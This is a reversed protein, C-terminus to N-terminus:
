GGFSTGWSLGVTYVPDSVDSDHYRVDISLSDGISKSVGLTWSTRGGNNRGKVDGSVAFDSPLEVNFKQQM